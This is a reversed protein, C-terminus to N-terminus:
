SFFVFTYAVSFFTIHSPLLMRELINVLFYTSHPYSHCRFLDSINELGLAMMLTYQIFTKMNESLRSENVKRYFFFYSLM